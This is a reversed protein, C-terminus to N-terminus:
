FIILDRHHRNYVCSCPMHHYLSEVILIDIFKVNDNTNIPLNPRRKVIMIDIKSDNPAVSPSAQADDYIANEMRRNMIPVAVTPIYM